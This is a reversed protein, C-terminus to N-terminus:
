PFVKELLGLESEGSRTSFGDRLIGTVAGSRGDHCTYGAPLPRDPLDWAVMFGGVYIEDVVGETGKPVGSFSYLARVRAGLEIDEPRM